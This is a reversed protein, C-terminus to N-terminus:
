CPSLEVQWPGLTQILEEALAQVQAVVMLVPTAPAPVMECHAAGGGRKGAEGERGGTPEGAPGGGISGGGDDSDESSPDTRSSVPVAGFIWKPGSSAGTQESVSSESAFVITLLQM